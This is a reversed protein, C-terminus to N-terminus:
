PTPPLRPPSRSTARISKPEVWHGIRNKLDGSVSTWGDENRYVVRDRPQLRLEARGASRGEGRAVDDCRSAATPRRRHHSLRRRPRRSSSACLSRTDFREPRGAIESVGLEEILVEDVRTATSIDSVFPVPTALNFKDRLKKLSEKAEEGTVVGNLTFRTARRGQSAFFDGELGPVDTRALVHVHESDIRQALPLELDDLMPRNAM